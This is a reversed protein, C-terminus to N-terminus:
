LGITVFMLGFFAWYNIKKATKDVKDKSADIVKTEIAKSPMKGISSSKSQDITM